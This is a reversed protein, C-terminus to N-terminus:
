NSEIDEINYKIMRLMNRDKSFEFVPRERKESISVVAKITDYSVRPGLEKQVDMVDIWDNKKSLIDIMRKRIKSLENLLERPMRRMNEELKTSEEEIKRKKLEETAWEIIRQLMESSIKEKDQISELVNIPDM